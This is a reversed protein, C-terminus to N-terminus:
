LIISRTMDAVIPAMVGDAPGDGHASRTRRSPPRRRRRRARQRRCTSGGGEAPKYDKYTKIWNTCNEDTGNLVNAGRVAEM